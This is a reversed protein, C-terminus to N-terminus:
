SKGDRAEAVLTVFWKVGGDVLKFFATCGACLTGVPFLPYVHGGCRPCRPVSEIVYLEQREISTLLPPRTGPKSAGGRRRLEAARTFEAFAEGQKDVLDDTVLPRTEDKM